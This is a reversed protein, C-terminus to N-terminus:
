EPEGSAIPDSLVVNVCPDMNKAAADLLAKGVPDQPGYVYGRFSIDTIFDTPVRGKLIGEVVTSLKKVRRCYVDVFKGQVNFEFSYGGEDYRTITCRVGNPMRLEYTGKRVTAAVKAVPSRQLTEDM